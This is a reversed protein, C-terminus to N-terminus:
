TPAKVFSGDDKAKRIYRMLTIAKETQSVTATGLDAIEIPFLYREGSISVTYYLFGQRYFSFTAINNKVIETINM